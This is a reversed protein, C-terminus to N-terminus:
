SAKAKENTNIRMGSKVDPPAVGEAGEGDVDDDDTEDEEEAASDQSSSLFENALPLEDSLSGGELDSLPSTDETLFATKEPDESYTHEQFASLREPGVAVTKDEGAPRVEDM